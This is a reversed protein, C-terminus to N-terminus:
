RGEMQAVSEQLEGLDVFPYKGEGYTGFRDIYRRGAETLSYHALPRGGGPVNRFEGQVIRAKRLLDVVRPEVSGQSQGNPGLLWIYKTYAHQRVQGGEKLCDLIRGMDSRDMTTEAAERVADEAVKTWREVENKDEGETKSTAREYDWPAISRWAAILDNLSATGTTPDGARVSKIAKDRGHALMEAVQIQGERAVKLQEWTMPPMPQSAGIVEALEVQTEILRDLMFVYDRGSSEVSFVDNASERLNRIYDSGALYVEEWLTRVMIFM